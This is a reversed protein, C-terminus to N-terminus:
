VTPFFGYAFFLQCAVAFTVLAMAPLVQGRPGIGQRDKSWAGAASLFTAAALIMGAFLMLTAVFRVHFLLSVRGADDTWYQVPGAFGPTQLWNSALVLTTLWTGFGLVTLSLGRRADLPRGVLRVDLTWGALVALSAVVTSIFCPLM